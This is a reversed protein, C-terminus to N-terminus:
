HIIIKMEEMLRFVLKQNNMMNSFKIDFFFFFFFCVWPPLTWNAIRSDLRKRVRAKEECNELHPANPVDSKNMGVKKLFDENNLLLSEWASVLLKVKDDDDEEEEVTEAKSKWNLKRDITAVMDKM